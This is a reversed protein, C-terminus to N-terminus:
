RRARLRSMANLLRPTAAEFSYEAMARTRANRGMTERLTRDQALFELASRWDQPSSAHLGTAGHAVIESNVGVPSCVSPLGCAMYQLLKYGGKGRAWSTDPLPMLGIDCEGLLTVEDELRWPFHEVPVGPLDLPGAGILRLSVNPHHECVQRLAGAIQALYATTSGSGVWGLVVRDNQLRAVPRYRGCDIPGTVRLAETGCARAYSETEENEVVVLDAKGVIRRVGETGYSDDSYIADDFDFVIPKGLASLEDLVAAPLVVKQISVVDHRPAELLLRRLALRATIFHYTRVSPNVVASAARLLPNGKAVRAAWWFDAGSHYKIVTTSVGHGHLHPLYQFVRTRSSAVLENGLTLFLIKM